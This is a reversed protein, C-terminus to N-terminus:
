AAIAPQNHKRRGSSGGKPLQNLLGIKECSKIIKLNLKENLDSIRLWEVL